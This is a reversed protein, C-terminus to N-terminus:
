KAKASATAINLTPIPIRVSSVIHDVVHPFALPSATDVVHRHCASSGSLPFDSWEHHPCILVDSFSVKDLAYLM